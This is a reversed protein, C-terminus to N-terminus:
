ELGLRKKLEANESRLREALLSKLHKNEEELAVLDRLDDSTTGPAPATAKKWHYYTQVSLGVQKVASKLTDGNKISKDIQTLRQAREKESYTKRTRTGTSAGNAPSTPKASNTRVPSASVAKAKRLRQNEKKIPPTHPKVASNATVESSEAKEPDAMQHELTSKEANEADRAAIGSDIRQQNTPDMKDFETRTEALATSFDIDGWISGGSRQYGRKQKVEVVFPRSQRRM